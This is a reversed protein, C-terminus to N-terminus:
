SINSTNSSIDGLERLSQYDPNDFPSYFIQVMAYYMTQQNNKDWYANSSIVRGKDDSCLEDVLRIFNNIDGSVVADYEYKAM